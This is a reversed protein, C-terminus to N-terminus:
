QDLTELWLSYVLASVYDKLPFYFMTCNNRFSGQLAEAESSVPPNNKGECEPKAKGWKQGTKEM